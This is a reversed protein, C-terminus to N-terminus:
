GTFTVAFLKIGDNHRKGVKENGAPVSRITM